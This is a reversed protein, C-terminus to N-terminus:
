RTHRMMDDHARVQETYQEFVLGTETEYRWKYSFWYDGDMHMLMSKKVKTVKIDLGHVTKLHDGLEKAPFVKGCCTIENIPNARLKEEAIRDEKKQRKM